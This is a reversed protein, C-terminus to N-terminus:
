LKPYMRKQHWVLKIEAYLKGNKDKKVQFLIFYSKVNYRKYAPKPEYIHGISPNNEIKEIAKFISRLWSQAGQLTEEGIYEAIKFIQNQARKSIV